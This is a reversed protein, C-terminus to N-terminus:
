NTAAYFLAIGVTIVVAVTALRAIRNWMAARARQADQRAVVAAMRALADPDLRAPKANRQIRAM